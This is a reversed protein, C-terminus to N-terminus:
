KKSNAATGKARISTMQNEGQMMGMAAAKAQPPMNPNNQYAAAQQNAQQQQTAQTVNSAHNCGALLGAVITATPIIIATRQRNIM